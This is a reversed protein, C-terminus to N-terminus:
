LDEVKIEDVEGIGIGADESELGIEFVATLDESGQGGM